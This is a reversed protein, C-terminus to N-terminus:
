LLYKVECFLCFEVCQEVLIHFHIGKAKSSFMGAVAALSEESSEQFQVNSVVRALAKVMGEVVNTNKPHM